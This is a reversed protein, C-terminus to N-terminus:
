TPPACVRPLAKIKAATKKFGEIAAPDPKEGDIQAYVALALSGDQNYFSIAQTRQGANKGPVDTAYIAKVHPASIHTHVGKGGDAYVDLLDANANQPQTIPVLSPFAFTHQGGSALVLKVSTKEGWADITKWIERVLAPTAAAGFSQEVPLGSAVVSEPWGFARAPVPLPRGPRQNTYYDHVSAIQAASACPVPAEAHALSAAGLLLLFAPTNKM